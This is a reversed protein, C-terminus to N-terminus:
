AGAPVSALHSFHGSWLITPAFVVIGQTQGMIVIPLPTRPRDSPLMITPSRTTNPVSMWEVAANSLSYSRILFDTCRFFSTTTRISYYHVRPRM